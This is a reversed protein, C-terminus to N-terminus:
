LKLTAGARINNVDKIGNKAALAKVTTGHRKAIASLTDGSKIKYTNPKSPAKEPAKKPAPKRQATKTEKPKSDAKSSSQARSRYRPSEEKESGHTAEWEAKKGALMKHASNNYEELTLFGKVDEPSLGLEELSGVRARVDAGEGKREQLGFMEGILHLVDFSGRKDDNLADKLVKIKDGLTEAQSAAKSTENFNYQDVVYVQDGDLVIRGNGIYKKLGEEPSGFGDGIGTGKNLKITGVGSKDFDDYHVRDKSVAGGEKVVKKVTRELIKKETEDLFDETWTGDGDFWQRFFARGAVSTAANLAAPMQPIQPAEREKQSEAVAHAEFADNNVMTSPKQKMAEQARAVNVNDPMPASSIGLGEKLQTLLDM